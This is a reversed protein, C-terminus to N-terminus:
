RARRRRRVMVVAIAGLIGLGVGWGVYTSWHDLIKERTPPFFISISYEQFYALGAGSAGMSTIRFTILDVDGHIFDTDKELFLTYGVDSSDEAGVSVTEDLDYDTLIGPPNIIEIRFTDMGNGENYLRLVGDVTAPSDEVETLPIDSGITLKYYQRVMVTCEASGSAVQLGDTASAQVTAKNSMVHTKPPVEVSLYFPQPDANTFVMTSPSVEASWVCSAELTVTIRQISTSMKGVSVNGSFIVVGSQSNTIIATLAGPTLSVEVSLVIADPPTLATASLFATASTLCIALAIARSLLAVLSGRGM